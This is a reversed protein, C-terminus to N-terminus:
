PLAIYGALLDDTIRTTVTVPVPIGTINMTAQLTMINKVERGAVSSFYITGSGTTGAPLGAIVNYNAQVVNTFVGAPVSLTVNTAAVTCAITTSGNVLNFTTGPSLVAPITGQLVAAPSYTNVGGSANIMLYSTLIGNTLVPTLGAPTSANTTITTSAVATASSGIGLYSFSMTTTTNYNWTNGAALKFFTSSTVAGGNNTATPTGSGCGSIFLVFILLIVAFVISKGTQM